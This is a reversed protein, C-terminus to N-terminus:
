LLLWYFSDTLEEDMARIRRASEQVIARYAAAAVAPHEQEVEQLAQLPLQLLETDEVAEVQASTLGPEFLSMEGFIEGPGVTGVTRLPVNTGLRIQVRGSLVVFLSTNVDNLGLIEEGAGVHRHIGAEQMIDRASPELNDFVKKTQPQLQENM